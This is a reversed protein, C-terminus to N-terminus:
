GMAWNARYKFYKHGSQLIIRLAKRKEDTSWKYGHLRIQYEHTEHPSLLRDSLITSEVENCRGIEKLYGEKAILKDIYVPCDAINSIYLHVIIEGTDDSDNYHYFSLKKLYPIRGIRISIVIAVVALIASIFGDNDNCLQVITTIFDLCVSSLWTM